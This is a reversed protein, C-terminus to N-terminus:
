STKFVATCSRANARRAVSKSLPKGQEGDSIEIVGGQKIKKSFCFGGELELIHDGFGKYYLCNDIDICPACNHYIKTIIGKNIFIIDLFTKCRYTWFSHIGVSPMKFLMGKLSSDFSKGTMGESIAEPTNCLYVDLHTGNIVVKM